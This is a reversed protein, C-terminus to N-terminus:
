SSIRVMRLNKDGDGPTPDAEGTQNAYGEKETRSVLMETKKRRELLLVFWLGLAHAILEPVAALLLHQSKM